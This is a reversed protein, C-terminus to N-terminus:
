LAETRELRYQSTCHTRIHTLLAQFFLGQCHFSEMGCGLTASFAATVNQTEHMERYFSLTQEELLGVEIESTPACFFYAPVAKKLSVEKYLNLGFCLAFVCVLNNATATNLERLADITEAWSVRE